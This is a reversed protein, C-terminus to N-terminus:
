KPPPPLKVPPLVAYEHKEISIKTRQDSNLKLSAILTLLFIVIFIMSLIKKM